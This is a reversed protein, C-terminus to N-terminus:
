DDTFRDTLAAVLPATLAVVAAAVEPPMDVGLLGLGWVLVVAVAAGGGTGTLMKNGKDMAM